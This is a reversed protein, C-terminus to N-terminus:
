SYGQTNLDNRPSIIESEQQTTEPQKRTLQKCLVHCHPPDLRRYYNQLTAIVDFDYRKYFRIGEENNVQVHLYAAFINPDFEVAQIAKRLLLSGVGHGRYPALVGLTMIYLRAGGPAVELRCAIGGVVEDGCLALLSAGEFAVCDRYFKDKYAIPFIAQNLAKLRPLNDPTVAQLDVEIRTCAESKAWMGSVNARGERREAGACEKAKQGLM